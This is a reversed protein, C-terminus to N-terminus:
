TNKSSQAILNQVIKTLFDSLEQFNEIHTDNSLENGDKDYCKDLIM